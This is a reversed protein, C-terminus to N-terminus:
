VSTERRVGWGVVGVLVAVAVWLADGPLGPDFTFVVDHEGPPLPVGRFTVDARLIDVPAGDVTATWRPYWTDALVLTGPGTARVEVRRNAYATITAAPGAAPTAVALDVAAGATTDAAPVAECGLDESLGEVVVERRLDAAALRTFADDVTPVARACPVVRARPAAGPDAYVNVPGRVLRTLGPIEHTSAIWRVGMRRAVDINRLYRGVKEPGRDGVDLGAVALLAENRVLLLPSPLIVDSTGWPLGLSATGLATDLTPSVRRDLVTLRPGGPETMGAGLWGPRAEVADAPVRPHYDHGFRWLEVAALALWWAPRRVALSALLLLAVPVLVRPSAPSTSARLDALISRVKAPVQTPDE